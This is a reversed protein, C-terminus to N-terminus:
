LAGGMHLCFGILAGWSAIVALLVLVFLAQVLDNDVQGVGAVAVVTGIFNFLFWLSMGLFLWGNM